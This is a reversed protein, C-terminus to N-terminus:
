KSIPPPVKKRQEARLQTRLSGAESQAEELETTMRARQKKERSKSDNLEENLDNLTHNLEEVEAELDTIKTELAIIKSSDDTRSKQRALEAAMEAQISALESELKRKSSRATEAQVTFRAFRLM